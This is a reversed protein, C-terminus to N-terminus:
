QRYPARQRMSAFCIPRLRIAKRIDRHAPYSRRSNPHRRSHQTNDSDAPRKGPLPNNRLFLLHSQPLPLRCPQLAASPLLGTKVAARGRLSSHRAEPAQPDISPACHHGKHRSHRVQQSSHWRPQHFGRAPSESFLPVSLLARCRLCDLRFHSTPLLWGRKCRSSM